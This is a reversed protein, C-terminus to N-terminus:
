VYPLIDDFVLPYCSVLCVLSILRLLDLVSHLYDDMKHMSWVLPLVFSVNFISCVYLEKFISLITPLYIWEVSTRHGHPLYSKLRYLNIDLMFGLSLHPIVTLEDGMFVLGLFIWYCFLTNMLVMYSLIYVWLAVLFVILCLILLLDWYVNTTM